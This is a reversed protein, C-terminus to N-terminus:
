RGGIRALEGGGADYVRFSPGDVPLPDESARRPAAVAYTSVYAPRGALRVIPLETTLGYETMTIRAAPAQGTYALTYVVGKPLPDINLTLPVTGPQDVDLPGVCIPHKDRPSAICYERQKLLYWVGLGAEIREGPRVVRVPSRGDEATPSASAFPAQPAVAHSAGSDKARALEVAPPALLVTLAAATAMRRRRRILQGRRVIRDRPFAAPAYEQAADDLARWLDPAPPRPSMDTNM